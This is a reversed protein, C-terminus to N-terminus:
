IQDIGSIGPYCKQPLLHLYSPYTCETIFNTNIHGNARSPQSNKIKIEPIHCIFIQDRIYILPNTYILHNYEGYAIM